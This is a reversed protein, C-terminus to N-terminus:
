RAQRVHIEFATDAPLMRPLVANLFAEMSPEEVLFECRSTKM